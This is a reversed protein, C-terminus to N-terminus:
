CNYGLDVTFVKHIRLPAQKLVPCSKLMHHVTPHAFDMNSINCRICWYKIGPIYNLIKAHMLKSNVLLQIFAVLHHHTAMQIDIGIIITFALFLRFSGQYHRYSSPQHMAKMQEWATSLLQPCRFYLFLSHLYVGGTGMPWRCMRPNVGSDPVPKRAQVPQSMPLPSLKM